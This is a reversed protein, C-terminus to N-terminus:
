DKLNLSGILKSLGDGNLLDERQKKRKGIKEARKRRCEKCIVKKRRLQTRDEVTSPTECDWCIFPRSVMMDSSVYHGCGCYFVEKTKANDLHSRIYKHAPGNVRCLAKAM